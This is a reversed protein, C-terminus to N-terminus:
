LICGSLAEVYGPLLQAQCVFQLERFEYCGAPSNISISQTYQSRAEATLPCKLSHTVEFICPPQIFCFTESYFLINVCVKKCMKKFIRRFDRMKVEAMVVLSGRLSSPGENGRLTGRGLGHGRLSSLYAM